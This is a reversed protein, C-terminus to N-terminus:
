ARVRTRQPSRRSSPLRRTPTPSRGRAVSGPSCRKGTGNLCCISSTASRIANAANAWPTSASCARSRRASHRAATSFSCSQLLCFIEVGPEFDRVALLSILPSLALRRPVPPIHPRFELRARLSSLTSRQSYQLLSGFFDLVPKQLSMYAQRISSRCSRYRTASASSCLKVRAAPRSCM